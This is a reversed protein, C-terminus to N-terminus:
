VSASGGSLNRVVVAFKCGFMESAMQMSGVVAATLESMIVKDEVGTHIVIPRYNSDEKVLENKVAKCFKDMRNQDVCLAAGEDNIAMMTMILADPPVQLKEAVLLMIIGYKGDKPAMLVEDGEVFIPLSRDCLAKMCCKCLKSTETISASMAAVPCVFVLSQNHQSFVQLWFFPHFM